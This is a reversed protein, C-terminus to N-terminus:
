WRRDSSYDTALRCNDVTDCGDGVVRLDNRGVLDRRRRVEASSFVVEGIGHTAHSM